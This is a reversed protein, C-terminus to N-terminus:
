HPIRVQCGQTIHARAQLERGYPHGEVVVRSGDGTLLSREAGSSHYTAYWAEEEWPEEAAMLAMMVQVSCELPSPSPEM